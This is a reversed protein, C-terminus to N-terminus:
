SENLVKWILEACRDLSFVEARRIGRDVLDQHESASCLFDNLVAVMEEVSTPDFYCANKGLVEQFAPIDSAVVPTGCALSELGTMCFGEYLSPIVVGLAASYLGPLDEDDIRGIIRAGVPLDVLGPDRFRTSDAGALVLNLDPFLPQISVWAQLLRNLNKRPQLTGVFLLFPQHLGFRELLKKIQQASAPHFRNGAVGPPVVVVKEPALRFRRILRSKSFDSVTIVRRVKNALRPLLFGYWDAFASSYWEPRDLPALDHITVVQNSSLLPGTNAPSWLLATTPVSLPLLLQEWIHGSWGQILPPPKMLGIREGLCGIVDHAYREVGSIPRSAFRANVLVTPSM